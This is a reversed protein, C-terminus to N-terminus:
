RLVAESPLDLEKVPSVASSLPLDPHSSQQCTETLALGKGAPLTLVGELAQQM